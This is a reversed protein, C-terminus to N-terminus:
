RQPCVGLTGFRVARSFAMVHLGEPGYEGLAAFGQDTSLSRSWDLTSTLLHEGHARQWLLTDYAIEVASRRRPHHESIPGLAALMEEQVRYTRNVTSPLPERRVLWWGAECVEGTAFPQSDITWEDRLLYGCGKHVRPDLGGALREAIQTMTLPGDPDRPIRLVLLEGAARAGDLDASTFPLHLVREREEETTLVSLPDFGLALEIEHPGIVRGGLHRAAEELGVVVM